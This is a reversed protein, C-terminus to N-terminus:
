KRNKNSGKNRREKGLRKAAGNKTVFKRKKDKGNVNWSDVDDTSAKTNRKMGKKRGGFGYKEDRFDRRQKNGSNGKRGKQQMEDIEALEEDANLFDLNKLKGSRFKKVNDGLQRKEKAKAQEADVQVQKGYKKLERLRRVKQRRVEDEQKTLLVKRIRQMHDDTKVMQAFYDEPRRTPINMAHLRKIGELVASQAQRYFLMERKFDNHVIDKDMSGTDKKHLKEKKRLKSHEEEQYALEPALTAPANVMDLREIWPLYVKLELLKEELKKKDFSPKKKQVEAVVNMGPKLLGSQFAAQLEKDEMFSDDSSYDDESEDEEGSEEEVANTTQEEDGEEVDSTEKMEESNMQEV